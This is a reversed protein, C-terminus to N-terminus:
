IPTTEGAQSDIDIPTVLFMHQGGLLVRTARVDDVSEFKVEPYGGTELVKEIRETASKARAEASYGAIPGYLEIIIRNALKVPVSTRTVVRTAGASEEAAPVAAAHLLLSSVAAVLLFMSRRMRDRRDDCSFIKM